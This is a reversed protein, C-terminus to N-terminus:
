SVSEANTFRGALNSRSVVEVFGCRKMNNLSPSPEEGVPKGTETFIHCATRAIADEIRRAMLAGQGGRRRHSAAVGGMGLWALEGAIFLSAGGVVKGGDMLAYLTWNPRGQLQAIWDAVYPPLSLADTMVRAVRDSNERSAPAVTLASEIHPPSEIGRYMKIWQSVTRFEFGRGHLRALLDQPCALPSWLLRWDAVGRERFRAAIAEVEEVGADNCLGLGIARNFIASPLGPALLLTADSVHEVSLALRRRLESPAAAFFDTFALIEAKDALAALPHLHPTTTM